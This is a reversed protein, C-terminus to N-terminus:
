DALQFYPPPSITSELSSYTFNLRFDTFIHNTIIDRVLDRINVLCDTVKLHDMVSRVVPLILFLLKLHIQLLNTYCFIFNLYIKFMM